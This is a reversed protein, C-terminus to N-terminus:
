EGYEMVRIVEVKESCTLVVTYLGAALGSKKASFEVSHKGIPLVENILEAVKQGATNFVELKTRGPQTTTLEITTSGVYPNPFARMLSPEENSQLLQENSTTSDAIIQQIPVGGFGLQVYPNFERCLDFFYVEGKNIATASPITLYMEREADVFVGPGDTPHFYNPQHTVYVDDAVDQINGSVINDKGYIIYVAGTDPAGNYTSALIDFIHDQNIDVMKLRNGFFTESGQI